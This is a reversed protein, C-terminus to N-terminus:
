ATHQWSATKSTPSCLIQGASPPTDPLPAILAPSTASTPSVRSGRLASFGNGATASSPLEPRSVPAYGSSKPPRSGASLKCAPTYLRRDASTEVAMIFPTHGRRGRGSGEGTREGGIYADDIEIQPGGAGLKYCRDREIM